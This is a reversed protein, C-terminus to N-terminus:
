VQSIHFVNYYKLVPINKVQEEGDVEDKVPYLKWFVVIEAKAGKKIKGGLETWQKFTAYEGKHELLMQNLLSYPKKSIRNFAGELVGTWPQHWPIIGQEMQKIIRDTVMQYVNNKM